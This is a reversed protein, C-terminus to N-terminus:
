AVEAAAMAWLLGQAKHWTEAYELDPQSGAVIGGGVPFQWWGRSCTVTRILINWDATGDFGVYGLSGCYAGRATPELEAIIEMARVKPAGTVSGGPFAAQVVDLADRGEELTGEVASVLHQVYAYTELGCLQTVRVSDPRCVRSLDNRLLDVIMVNEARDKASALLEEAAFLDAEARRLRPRTGKIPRAEVRGAHVQLFREPSASVIQASGLDFWGAFPAPNAERMRLYLALSRGRAPLLLRQALNVQFIDGAHIYAIAREIAKRYGQASFNSTLGPLEDIPYQPALSTAPLAGDGNSTNDQWNEELIVNKNQLWRLFEAARHRARRRQDDLSKEPFGHSFLWARGQVHDWALVVDYLGVALAPLGFEDHRWAPLRELSRGLEYSLLGAAGGQFPPLEACTEACWGALRQRLQGLPDPAGAPLRLVTFPDAALFSYRGLRQDQQASELLLSYPRHALAQLAQGVDPVPDLEVVLPLDGRSRGPSGPTATAPPLTPWAPPPDPPGAPRDRGLSQTPQPTTPEPGAAVPMAKVPQQSQEAAPVACAARAAAAKRLRHSTEEVTLYGWRLAEDQRYDKGLTLAIAAKAMEYGLYFAHSPDVRAPPHSDPAGDFGPHLLREFLRFPDTDALHLGAGILHIQGDEAFIRYNPDKIQQALQDLAEPGFRRVKPDRLVILRPERHKPPIGLRVAAAVLRRALDCERVSTQAWPIVQTTLVSHIGLEQCFGLLLVNLGASDADTLETLNGIGMLMAADPYRRRVELYRGLSAAFGCGIPELIPDIRLPVGASALMQVTEDLGALTKPDDPIVVVECGWHRAAQRNTANVSLVLEAGAKV